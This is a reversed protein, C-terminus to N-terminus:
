NEINLSAVHCWLVVHHTIFMKLSNRHIHNDVQVFRPNVQPCIVSVEVQVFPVDCNVTRQWTKVWFKFRVTIRITIGVVIVVVVSEDLRALHLLRPM